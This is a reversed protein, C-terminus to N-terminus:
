GVISGDRSASDDNLAEASLLGPRYTRLIELAYTVKDDIRQGSPQSRNWLELNEPRNDLRDGNIHHVNEMALLDRGIMDAVVLRHEAVAGASNAMPHTPAYVIRYGARSVWTTSEAPERAPLDTTGHKMLRAYHKYCCGRSHAKALCGDAICTPGQPQPSKGGKLPDGHKLLRQYHAGCYERRCRERLCNPVTCLVM